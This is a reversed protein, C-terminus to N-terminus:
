IKLCVATINDHGGGELAKEILTQCTDQMAQDNELIEIIDEESVDGYLGDSCLLIIDGEELNEEYFDPLVDQDAGLARTIINRQMHTKADEETIEGCKVLTNVYTHDETIQTLKGQRLIYARSDGINMFYAKHDRIYVLVITTAMGFNDEDSMALKYVVANANRVCRDFYRRIGASTEIENIDNDRVFLAMEEVATESALDGSKGGGVGDAVMYINEAPITFFSDENLERVLGTNSNFGLQVSKTEPTQM